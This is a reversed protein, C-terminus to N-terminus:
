CDARGDVVITPISLRVIEEIDPDDRFCDNQMVFKRGSSLVANGGEGGRRSRDRSIDGSCSPNATDIINLAARPMPCLGRPRVPM